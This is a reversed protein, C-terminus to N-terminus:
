LTRKSEDLIEVSYGILEMASVWNKIEPITTYIDLHFEAMEMKDSKAILIM